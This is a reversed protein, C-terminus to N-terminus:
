ITLDHLLRISKLVRTNILTKLIVIGKLMHLVILVLDWMTQLKTKLLMFRFVNNIWFYRESLVSKYWTQYHVAFNCLGYTATLAFRLVWAFEKIQAFKTWKHFCWFKHLDWKNSCISGNTCIKNNTCISDIPVCAATQAFMHVSSIYNCLM